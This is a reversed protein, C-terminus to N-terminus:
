LKKRGKRDKITKQNKGKGVTRTSAIILTVKIRKKSNKPKEIAFYL